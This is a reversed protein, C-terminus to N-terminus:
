IRKTKLIVDTESLASRVKHIDLVVELQSIREGLGSIDSRQAPVSPNIYPMSSTAGGTEFGPIGANRMAGSGGLRAIQAKNIVAEESNVAILLNDSTGTYVPIGGTIKGGSEYGAKKKKYASNIQSAARGAEAIIGAISAGAIATNISVWPQGATLPMVAVAKANAIGTNSIIQAIATAKEAIM